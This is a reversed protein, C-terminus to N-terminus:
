KSVVEAVARSVFDLSAPIPHGPDVLTKSRRYWGSADDHDIGDGEERCRKWGCMEAIQDRAETLQDPM